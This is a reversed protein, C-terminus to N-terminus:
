DNRHFPGRSRVAKEHSLRFLVLALALVAGLVAAETLTVLGTYIGGLVVLPLMLAPLAVRTKRLRDRQPAWPAAGNGPVKAFLSIYGAFLLAQLIGPVVGALFLRPISTESIIGIMIMPLSPPVLIGLTASAATLGMAFSARYGREILLPVLLTGMAMATSVSSGNIAAFLATAAVAAIGAGGPIRGLWALAAEFLVRAIGGSRMAVAALMFFPIAVLVPSNLHDLAHQGIGAVSVGSALLLVIAVSIMAVYVPVGLVLLGSFAALGTVLAPAM